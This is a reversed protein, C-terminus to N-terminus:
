EELNESLFHIKQDHIESAGSNRIEVAPSDRTSTTPRYVIMTGDDLVSRVGHGNALAEEKGGNSIGQYFDAAAINANPARIIRVNRGKQGFYGNKTYPYKHAIARANNVISSGQTSESQSGATFGFGGHQSPGGM